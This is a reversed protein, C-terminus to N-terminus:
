NSKRDKNNFKELNLHLLFLEVVVATGVVVVVLGVFTGVVVVVLGVLTVVVVEVLGVFTVVDVVALGVVVLLLLGTTSDNTVNIM